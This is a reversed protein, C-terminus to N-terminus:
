FLSLSMEKIQHKELAFAKYIKRFRKILGLPTTPLLKVKIAPVKWKDVSQKWLKWWGWWWWWLWVYVYMYMYMTCICVYVHVYYMYMCVCTCLVYVYMYMYMTCICVYVHVYYMYMCICTCLVYVYMYMYMTCICVYVHVYYMYMCICTCLVYVYMYMYMTCICVHVHVYYMYMCVCTCLVYVYMYMYMTCICVYVHVYYMYMCVCTCLAYVYMCMYMTCQITCQGLSVKQESSYNTLKNMMALGTFEGKNRPQVDTVTPVPLSAQIVVPKEKESQNESIGDLLNTIKPNKLREPLEAGNPSEYLEPTATHIDASRKQGVPYNVKTHLPNCEVCRNINGYHKIVLLDKTVDMAIIHQLIDCLELTHMDRLSQGITSPGGVAAAYKPTWEEEDLSYSVM